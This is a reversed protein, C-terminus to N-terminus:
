MQLSSSRSDCEKRVLQTILTIADYIVLALHAAEFQARRIRCESVDICGCEGVDLFVALM